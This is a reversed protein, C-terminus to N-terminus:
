EVGFFHHVLDQVETPVEDAESMGSSISLQIGQIQTESGIVLFGSLNETQHAGHPLPMKYRINNRADIIIVSHNEPVINSM